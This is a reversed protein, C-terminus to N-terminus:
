FMKVWYKLVCVSSHHGTELLSFSLRNQFSFAGPKNAHICSGESSNDKDRSNFHGSQVEPWMHFPKAGQANAPGSFPRLVPLEAEVPFCGTIHSRDCRGNPCEMGAASQAKTKQGLLTEWARTRKESGHQLETALTCSWPLFCAMKKKHHMPGPDNGM